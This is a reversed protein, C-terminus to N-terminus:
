NKCIVRGSTRSLSKRSSYRVEGHHTELIGKSRQILYSRIRENKFKSQIQLHLLVIQSEEEAPEGM